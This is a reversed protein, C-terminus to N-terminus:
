ITVRRLDYQEEIYFQDPGIMCTDAGSDILALSESEALSSNIMIPNMKRISTMISNISPRANPRSEEENEVESEEEVYDYGSQEMNKIQRTTKPGVNVRGATAKNPHQTKSDNKYDNNQYGRDEGNGIKKM